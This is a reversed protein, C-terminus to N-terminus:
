YSLCGIFSTIGGINVSNIGHGQLFAEAQGSRAGSRCYLYATKHRLREVNSPLEHLPIHVAGRIHSQNFENRTRVDVLISSPNSMVSKLKECTM